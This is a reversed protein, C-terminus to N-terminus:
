NEAREEKRKVTRIKMSSTAPRAVRPWHKKFREIATRAPKAADSGAAGEFLGPGGDRYVAQLTVTVLESDKGVRSVEVTVIGEAGDPVPGHARIMTIVGPRESAIEIETAPEVGFAERFAWTPSRGRARANM